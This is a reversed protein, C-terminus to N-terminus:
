AYMRKRILLALLGAATAALIMTAIESGDAWILANAPNNRAPFLLDRIRQGPRKPSLAPQQDVPCFGDPCDGPALPTTQQEIADDWSIGDEKVETVVGTIAAQKAQQYLEYGRAFDRYLEEATSPMNNRTAVHVHGGTSDQLIVAPFVTTPIDEAYRTKYLPNEPAYAQFECQDRLSRLGPHSELWSHVRDSLPSSDLFAAMQWKIPPLTTPGDGPDDLVLPEVDDFESPVDPKPKGPRAPAPQPQCPVCPQVPQRRWRLIQQKIEQQADTNVPPLEIPQTVMREDLPNYQPLQITDAQQVTQQPTPAACGSPHSIGILVAALIAAHAVVVAALGATPRVRLEGNM